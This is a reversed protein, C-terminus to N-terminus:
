KNQQHTQPLQSARNERSSCKHHDKGGKRGDGRPLTESALHNHSKGALSCARIAQDVYPYFGVGQAILSRRQVVSSVLDTTERAEDSDQRSTPSSRGGEHVFSGFSLLRFLDKLFTNFREGDRLFVRFQLFDEIKSTVWLSIGCIRGIIIWQM